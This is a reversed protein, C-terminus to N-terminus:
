KKFSCIIDCVLDVIRKDFVSPIINESNLKDEDICKSIGKAVELQMETTIKNVRAKLAGKIIGPFVLLNNIQNPYDSRGTAIVKVNAEKAVEPMIEPIPNALAFIISDSNMSMAMEKTLINGASVGIFVDSNVLADKLSGAKNKNFKIACKEQYKNSANDSTIIGYRDCIVVNHFGADYILNVIAIGAAGAGNVVIKIDFDKKVVKKATLLAALVAIATGHQDDHFVPIDCIENLKEEIEFCRPASIDELNIAGFSGEILKITNVLVDVDNNNICIPFADVGAFEKFLVCKGEMVPMAALSGINGLGLVASGDTIVGVLNSRRTYKYSADKDKEIELCPYSVGPTYAITLDENNNVPCRSIVEIKGKWMEHAQLSKEKM